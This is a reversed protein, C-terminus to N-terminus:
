KALHNIFKGNCGDAFATIGPCFGELWEVEDGDHHYNIIYDALAYAGDESIPNLKWDFRSKWSCGKAPLSLKIDNKKFCETWNDLENKSYFTFDLAASFDTYNTM